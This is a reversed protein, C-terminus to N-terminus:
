PDPAADQGHHSADGELRGRCLNRADGGRPNYQGTGPVNVM